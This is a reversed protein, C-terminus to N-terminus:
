LSSRGHSPLAVGLKEIPMSALFNTKHLMQAFVPAMRDVNQYQKNFESM